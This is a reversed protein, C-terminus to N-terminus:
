QQHLQLIEKKWVFSWWMLYFVWGVIFYWIHEQIFHKIPLLLNNVFMVGDVINDFYTIVLSITGIIVGIILAIGVLQLGSYIMSKILTKTESM